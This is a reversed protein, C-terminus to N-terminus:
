RKFPDSFRKDTTVSRDVTKDKPSAPAAVALATGLALAGARGLHKM